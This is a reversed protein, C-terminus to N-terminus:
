TEEKGEIDAPLKMQTLLLILHLVVVAKPPYHRGNVAHRYYALCWTLCEVCM